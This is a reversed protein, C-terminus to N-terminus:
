DEHEVSTSAPSTAPQQEPVESKGPNYYFHLRLALYPGHFEKPLPAFPDSATIGRWAARDLAIDGSSGTYQLGAVKGDPRIVFQISVKGRKLLPPKASEPIVANWNERVARLMGSLYPGFDVGQTDSLVEVNGPPGPVKSPKEPSPNESPPWAVAKSQQVMLDRFDVTGSPQKADQASVYGLAGLLILATPILLDRMVAEPLVNYGRMRM